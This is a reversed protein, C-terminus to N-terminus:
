GSSAHGTRGASIVAALTANATVNAAILDTNAAKLDAIQADKGALESNSHLKGDVIWKLVYFFAGAAGGTAILSILDAPM